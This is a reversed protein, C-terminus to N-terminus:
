RFVKTPRLREGLSRVLPFVFPTLLANYVAGLFAHRALEGPAIGDVGLLAAVAGYAFAAVVAAAWEIGIPLWATPAQVQARLRGAGYGVATYVLATIGKPLGLVLDTMLGMTFGATAGFGPGEGIALAVTVLLLLQPKSGALSASGLLATELALGTLTLLTLLLARRWIM